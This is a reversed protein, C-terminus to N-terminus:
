GKTAVQVLRTGSIGALPDDGKRYAKAFFQISFGTRLELPARPVLQYAVWGDTATPSNDGGTTLM